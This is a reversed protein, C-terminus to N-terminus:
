PLSTHIRKLAMLMYSTCLHPSGEAWRDASNMWSATDGEIKARSKIAKFLDARWDATSGDKLQMPGQDLLDMTKAMATYYYMLGQKEKGASMGPNADFQYHDRCWAM